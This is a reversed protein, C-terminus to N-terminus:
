IKFFIVDEHRAGVSFWESDSKVSQVAHLHSKYNKIPM